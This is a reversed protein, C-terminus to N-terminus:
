AKGPGDSGSGSRASAANATVGMSTDSKSAEGRLEREAQLWFEEEYGERKGHQEWLEFARRRVQEQTDNDNPGM